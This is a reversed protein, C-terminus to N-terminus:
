PNISPLGLCTKTESYTSGFNTCENCNVCVGDDRVSGANCLVRMKGPPCDGTSCPKCTSAGAESYEGAGCKTQTNNICKYGADCILCAFNMDAIAREDNTNIRYGPDCVCQTGSLDSTSFMPCVEPARKGGPCYFRLRGPPSTEDLFNLYVGYHKRVEKARPCPYCHNVLSDTKDIINIETDKYERDIRYVWKDNRENVQIPHYTCSQDVHCTLWSGRECPMCIPAEVSVESFSHLPSASYEGNNCVYQTNGWALYGACLKLKEPYKTRENLWEKVVSVQQEADQLGGEFCGVNTVFPIWRETSDWIIPYNGPSWQSMVYGSPVGRSPNYFGILTINFYEILNGPTYANLAKQFPGVSLKEADSIFHSYWQAMM